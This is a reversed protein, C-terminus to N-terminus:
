SKILKQEMSEEVTFGRLKVISPSIYTFNLDMDMVTIVDSMNEAIIRYKKESEKLKTEAIKRETIDQTFGIASVAKGNEDFELDAKERVWKVEGDLL